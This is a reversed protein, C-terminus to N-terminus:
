EVLKLQSIDPAIVKIEPKIQGLLSGAPALSFDIDLEPPAVVLKRETEALLPAGVESLGWDEVDIELLPLENKESAELLNAGAEAVKYEPVLVPSIAISPAENKDLLNSGAPRLSYISLDFNRIHPALRTGAPMMLSGVPALTWQSTPASAAAPQAAQNEQNIQTPKTQTAETQSAVPHSPQPSAAQAPRTPVPDPAKIPQATAPPTSASVEVLTGAKTLVDRYKEASASDLGRKLVVPKGTFLADVKAADIKFLQQLKAKVDALNQGFQIDGRFVIEFTEQSMIVKGIEM